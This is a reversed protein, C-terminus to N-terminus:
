KLRNLGFMLYAKDDLCQMDLHKQNRRNLRVHDLRHVGVDDFRSPSSVKTDYRNLKGQSTPSDELASTGREQKFYATLENCINQVYQNRQNKSLDAMKEEHINRKPEYFKRRKITNKPSCECSHRVPKPKSKEEAKAAKRGRIEDLAAAIEQWRRQRELEADNAENSWQGIKNSADNLKNAAIKDKISRGLNKLLCLNM